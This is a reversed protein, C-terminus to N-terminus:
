PNELIHRCHGQCKSFIKRKLVSFVKKRCFNRLIHFELRLPDLPCVNHVLCRNECLNRVKGKSMNVNLDNCM